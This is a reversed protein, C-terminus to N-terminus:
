VGFTIAYRAVSLPTTEAEPLSSQFASFQHNASYRERRRDGDREQGDRSRSARARM